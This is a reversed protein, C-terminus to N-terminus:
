EDGGTLINLLDKPSAKEFYSSVDNKDYLDFSYLTHENIYEIAKEKQNKLLENEEQLDFIEKNIKQRFKDITKDPDINEYYELKKQIKTIHDYLLWMDERNLLDEPYYSLKNPEKKFYAFRDLIEKIEDKM